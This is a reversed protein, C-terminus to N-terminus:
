NEDCALTGSKAFNNKHLDNIIITVKEEAVGIDKAVVNTIDRAVKRKVDDSKGELWNIMITPLKNEEERTGYHKEQEVFYKSM